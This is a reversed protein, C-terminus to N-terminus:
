ASKRSATTSAKCSSLAEVLAKISIPKGLFGQMGVAMCRDVDEKMTGATLAIIRPPTSNNNALIQKTAEFGDMEPMHCDMLILDYSKQEFCKVAEKGNFAVDAKYGLKGLLGLVVLRNTNNDEAVLVRLPHKKGMEPDFSVFPDASTKVQLAGCEEAQFFFSFLSGKGPESEVRITGGMKECLGKSIALGLGTGGFKRTTSADVQSFTQFLRNKVHDPIGIGTDKVSFQINWKKDTLKEARSLIEVTGDETFKIANSVLNTLIQRFRTIDGLVWAPINSSHHYSLIIGKELARTNLLEVVDKVTSHLDFPLIELEIKDVELKSFDLVDNILELLSDGCNQIVKARDVITPDATSGLILNTMGIIGNMPTRIEHSMNALFRAKAQAALEATQLASEIKEKQDETVKKSKLMDWYVKSQAGIQLFLFLGYTVFIAVFAYGLSDDLTMIRLAPISLTIAVFLRARKASPNLATAAAACVGSVTLFLISTTPSTLGYFHISILCLIGWLSATFVLISDFIVIWQVRREPYFGGQNRSLWFRLAGMFVFAFGASSMLTKHDQLMPTALLIISFLVIHAIGGAPLHKGLEFESEIELQKPVRNGNLKM